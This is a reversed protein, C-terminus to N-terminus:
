CTRRWSSNRSDAASLVRRGCDPCPSSWGEGPPSGLLDTALEAPMSELSQISGQRSTRTKSSLLGVPIRDDRWLFVGLGRGSLM